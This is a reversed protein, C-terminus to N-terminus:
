PAEALFGAADLTWFPNLAHEWLHGDLDTVYGSYGGWHQKTPKAVEKAGAGLALAHAADVEAMTTFNQSLAIAGSAADSINLGIDRVLNDRPYLAMYQGKLTFFAINENSGPAEVWGLAQYYSRSLGLDNVSLTIMTIRQATM